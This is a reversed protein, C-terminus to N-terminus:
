AFLKRIFWSVMAKAPFSLSLFVFKSSSIVCQSLYFFTTSRVGFNHSKAEVANEPQKLVFFRAVHMYLIAIVIVNYCFKIFFISKRSSLKYRKNGSVLTTVVM